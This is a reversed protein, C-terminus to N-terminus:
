EKVLSRIETKSLSAPIKGFLIINHHDTSFIQQLHSYIKTPTTKQIEALFDAPTILRNHHLYSQIYWLALNFTDETEITIEGAVQSKGLSVSNESPESELISDLNNKITKLVKKTHKPAISTLVLFIGVDPFLEYTSTVLSAYGKNTILSQYLPSRRSDGVMKNLIALSAFDPHTGAITPGCFAIHTEEKKSHFLEINDFVTQPPERPKSKIRKVPLYKARRGKSMGGFAGDLTSLAQTPEVRGVVTLILNEPCYMSKWYKHVDDHTITRLAEETGIIPRGLPNDPFCAEYGKSYTMALGNDLYRMYEQLIVEREKEFEKEDLISNQLMDAWLDVLGLFNEYPAKAYYVTMDKHTFANNTAGLRDFERNIERYTRSPTGKFFMHELIHSIGAIEIPEYRSGVGFGIAVTVSESHPQPDVIVKAGNELQSLLPKVPSTPSSTSVDHM